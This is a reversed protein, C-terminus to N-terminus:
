NKILVSMATTITEDLASRFTLWNPLFLDPLPWCEMIMIILIFNILSLLSASCFQPKPARSFITALLATPHYLTLKHKFTEGSPPGLDDFKSINPLIVLGTWFRYKSVVWTTSIIIKEFLIGSKVLSSLCPLNNHNISIFKCLLVLSHYWIKSASGNMTDETIIISQDTKILFWHKVVTKAVGAVLHM